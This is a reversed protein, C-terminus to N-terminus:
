FPFSISSMFEDVAFQARDIISPNNNVTIKVDSSPSTYTKIATGNETQVIEGFRTSNSIPNGNRYLLANDDLNGVYVHVTRQTTLQKGDSDLVRVTVDKDSADLVESAYVHIRGTNTDDVRMSIRSEESSSEYDASAVNDAAVAYIGTQGETVRVNTPWDVSGNSVEIRFTETTNYGKSNEVSLEVSYKGSKNPTFRFEGNSENATIVSGDTSVATVDNIGRYSSDESEATLVVQEGVTPSITSIDVSKISPVEGVADLPNNAEVESKAVGESGIATVAFNVSTVDSPMQYDNIVVEDGGTIPDELSYQSENLTNMTGDSHHAVVVVESPGSELLGSQIPITADVPATESINEIEDKVDGSQNQVDEWSSPIEINVNTESEPVDYSPAKESVAEEILSITETRSLESGDRMGTDNRYEEKLTEVRDQLKQNSDLAGEYQNMLQKQASENLNALEQQTSASLQSWTTENFLEDLFKSRNLADSINSNPLSTYEYVTVEVNSAPPSARTPETSMYATASVTEADTNKAADDISKRIDEKSINAVESPSKGNYLEQSLGNAGHAVVAVTKASSPIDASWQGDKDSTTTVKVFKNDSQLQQIYDSRNSLTNARDKLNSEFTEAPNGVKIVTSITSGDSSAHQVRYFGDPLGGVEAAFHNKGLVLSHYERTKVEVDSISSSQPGISEISINQSGGVTAGRLDSDVEDQAIGTKGSDWVSLVIKEGEDFTVSPQELQPNEGVTWAAKNWEEENHAAIYTPEGDMDKVANTPDFSADFETPTPNSAKELLEEARQELTQGSEPNINSYDVAYAHITANSVTAGNQNKVVGSVPQSYKADQLYFANSTTYLLSSESSSTDLLHPSYSTTDQSFSVPSLDTKSYKHIEGTDKMVYVYDNDYDIDRVVYSISQNISSMTSTDIKSIFESNTQSYVYGNDDYEARSAQFSVNDVKSGSSWDIKDSESIKGVLVKGNNNATIHNLDVGTYSGDQSGDLDFRKIKDGGNSVYIHNNTVSIDFISSAPNRILNVSETKSNYVVINDDWNVWAAIKDSSDTNGDQYINREYTYTSEVTCDSPNVVKLEGSQNGVVKGDVFQANTLNIDCSTNAASANGSSFVFVGWIM